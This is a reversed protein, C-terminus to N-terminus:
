CSARLLLCSAPEWAFHEEGDDEWGIVYELTHQKDSEVTRHDM